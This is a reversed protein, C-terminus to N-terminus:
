IFLQALRPRASLWKRSDDDIHAGAKILTKIVAVYDEEEKQKNSHAASWIAQGLATGGYANKTELNAGHALLLNITEVKAGIVAWHLATQGTNAQADLDAGHRLLFELVENRGYEAAWLFGRDLKAKSANASLTGKQDFYKKVEDIRGLGAASELDLPAGRAALFEAARIRGNALCSNIVSADLPAGHELLHDLLSEQLGAQEPHISTAVLALTTAGGGYIDAIANVDAGAALLLKAIEVSNPPTKQRYGEVGNAAIYHLLTARHQRTSRTHILKPNKRRLAPLTDLDGTIIADAAQEFNSTPTNARSLSEVHGAFKTWSEFGHSRALVFKSKTLTLKSVSKEALTFRDLQDIWHELRVPLQPTLILNSLKALSDIWHTIWARLASPDASNAARALEKALKKYQDLNPLAPLPLADQPAFM